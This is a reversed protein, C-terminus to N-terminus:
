LSFLAGIDPPRVKQLEPAIFTAWSSWGDDFQLVLGGKKEAARTEPALLAFVMLLGLFSKFM